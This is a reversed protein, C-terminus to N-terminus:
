HELNQYDLFTTVMKNKKTKAEQSARRKGARTTRPTVDGTKSAEREALEFSKQEKAMEDEILPLRQRLRRKLVREEIRHPSLWKLLCHVSKMSTLSFWDAHNTDEIWIRGSGHFFWYCRDNRDTGLPHTRVSNQPGLHYLQQEGTPDTVPLSDSAKRRRLRINKLSKLSARVKDMRTVIAQAGREKERRETAKKRERQAQLLKEKRTTHGERSTSGSATDNKSHNKTSDLIVVHDTEPQHTNPHASSLPSPKKDQTSGVPPEIMAHKLKYETLETRLQRLQNQYKRRLASNEERAKKREEEAHDLHNSVCHRMVDTMVAYDVLERLVRCKGVPDIFKYFADKRSAQRLKQVTLHLLHDDDEDSEFLLINPLETLITDVANRPTATTLPRIIADPIDLENVLAKDSIIVQVLRLLCADILECRSNHMIAHQFHWLKFPTLRLPKSFSSVFDWVQLMDGVAASPIGDFHKSVVPYPQSPHQIPAASPPRPSHYASHHHPHELLLDSDHDDDDSSTYTPRLCRGYSDVGDIVHEEVSYEDTSM